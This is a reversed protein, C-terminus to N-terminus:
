VGAARDREREVLDCCEPERHRPEPVVPRPLRHEECTPACVPTAVLFCRGPAPFPVPWVLVPDPVPEVADSWCADPVTVSECSSELENVIASPAPLWVLKVSLSASAWVFSWSGFTQSM